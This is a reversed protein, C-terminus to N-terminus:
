DIMDMMLEHYEVASLTEQKAVRCIQLNIEVPLVAEKGYVLEFPTVKIAGHKSTM